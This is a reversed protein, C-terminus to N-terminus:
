LRHEGPVPPVPPVVPVPRADSVPDTEGEDDVGVATPDDGVLGDGEDVPLNTTDTVEAGDGPDVVGPSVAAELVATQNAQTPTITAPGAAVTDSNVPDPKYVVVKANPTVAGRTWVAGILSGIASFGNIIQSITDDSIVTHGVVQAIVLALTVLLGRVIAPNLKLLRQLANDQVTVEQTDSM